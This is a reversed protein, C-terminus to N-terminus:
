ARLSVREEPLAAVAESLQTNLVGAEVHAVRNALDIGLIRNMRVTCVIVGNEFGVCGGALGTGSGRPVIQVNNRALCRITQWSRSGRSRFCWRRQGRM